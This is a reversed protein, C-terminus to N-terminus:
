LLPDLKDDDTYWPCENESIDSFKKIQMKYKDFGLREIADELTFNTLNRNMDIYFYENNYKLYKRRTEEYLWVNNNRYEGLKIPQVQKFVPNNDKPKCVAEGRPVIPNRIKWEIINIADSLSFAEELNEQKAWQPISYNKGDYRLYWGYKGDCYYINKAKHVGLLLNNNNDFRMVTVGDIAM